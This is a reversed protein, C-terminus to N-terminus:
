HFGYLIKSVHIICVDLQQTELVVVSVSISPPLVTSVKRLRYTQDLVYLNNDHDSAIAWPYNLFDGRVHLAAGKITVVFGDTDLKKVAGENVTNGINDHYSGSSYTHNAIFLNGNSDIALARPRLM